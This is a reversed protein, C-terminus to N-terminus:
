IVMCKNRPLNVDCQKGDGLEVVQCYQEPLGYDRMYKGLDKFNHKQTISWAGITLGAGDTRAKNIKVIENQNFGEGNNEYLNYISALWAIDSNQLRSGLGNMNNQPTANKQIISKYGSLAFGLQYKKEDGGNTKVNMGASATNEAAQTMDATAGTTAVDINGNDTAKSAVDKATDGKEVQNKVETTSDVAKEVAKLTASRDAEIRDVANSFNDEKVIETINEIVGATIDIDPIVPPAIQIPDIKIEPM